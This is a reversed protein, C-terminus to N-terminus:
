MRIGRTPGVDVKQHILALLADPGGVPVVVIAEHHDFVFVVRSIEKADVLVDYRCDLYALVPSIHTVVLYSGAQRVYLSSLLNCPRFLKEMQSLTQKICWEKGCRSVGFVLVM